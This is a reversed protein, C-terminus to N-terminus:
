ESGDHWSRTMSCALLHPTDLLAGASSNGSELPVVERQLDGQQVRVQLTLWALVHPMSPSLTFRYPLNHDGGARRELEERQKDLPSTISEALALEKVAAIPATRENARTGGASAQGGREQPTIRQERLHTAPVLTSLLGQNEQVLQENLAEQSSSSFIRLRDHPLVRYFQLWQLVINLSSLATSKWQWTPSADVQIAVRFYM